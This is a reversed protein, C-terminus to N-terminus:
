GGELQEAARDLTERDNDHKGILEGAQEMTIGHKEAFYRVEYRESGSVRSRDSEGVNQKDDGM